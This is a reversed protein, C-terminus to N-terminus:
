AVQLRGSIEGIPGVKQRLWTKNLAKVVQEIIPLSPEAVGHAGEVSQDESLRIRLRVLKVNSPTLDILQETEAPCGKKAL